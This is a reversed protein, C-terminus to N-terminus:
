IRVLEELIEDATTIIRTSASFARQVKILESFENALDVTSGELRNPAVKGSGGQGAQQYSASGSLDSVGFTNGQRRTLGNSNSFTAVPLQFIDLKLGKDFLAVVRGDETIEVGSANRFNAGDISSNLHISDSNFQSFGDTSGNDGFDFAISGDSVDVTTDDYTFTLATGTTLDVATGAANNMSTNASDLAGGEDFAIQGSGILGDPHDTANLVSGDDFYMEYNWRNADAGDKVAAFIVTHSRGQSDFIQVNTEFAAPVSKDALSGVDSAPDYTGTPTAETNTNLNVRLGVQTSAAAFNNLASLNIPKLESPDQQNTTTVNGATDVPWGLLFFGGKNKLFGNTDPTFSGARTFLTEAAEDEANTSNRVVFFGAGDVALDTDSTSRQLLGQKSVLTESFARVGGPSYSSLSSTETVLTSFVSRTEKYGVTNVNTINDAIVGIGETFAQLGSVGATLATFAM